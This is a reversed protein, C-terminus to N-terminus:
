PLRLAWRRWISRRRQGAQKLQMCASYAVLKCSACVALRVQPIVHTFCPLACRAASGAREEQAGALLVTDCLTPRTALVVKTTCVEREAGGGSAGLELFGTAPQAGLAGAPEDAAAAEASAPVQEAPASAGAPAEGADSGIHQEQARTGDGFLAAASLDAFGQEAAHAPAAEAAGEAAASAPAAGTSSARGLATGLESSQSTGHGGVLSGPVSGALSRSASSSAAHQTSSESATPCVAAERQPGPPALPSRRSLKPWLAALRAGAAKPSAFLGSGSGSRLRATSALRLLRAGPARPAAGAESGADPGPQPSAPAAPLVSLEADTSPRPFDSVHGGPAAPTAPSPCQLNGDGDGDDASPPQGAVPM